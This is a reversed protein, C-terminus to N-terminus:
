RNLEIADIEEKFKNAFVVRLRVLGDARWFRAEELLLRLYTRQETEDRLPLAAHVLAVASEDIWSLDALVDRLADWNEGGYPTRLQAYIEQLLQRQTTLSNDIRVILLDRPDITNEDNVFEFPFHRNM